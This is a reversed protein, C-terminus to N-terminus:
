YCYFFDTWGKSKYFKIGIKEYRDPIGDRKLGLGVVAHLGKGRNSIMLPFGKHINKSAESDETDENGVKGAKGPIALRAGVGAGEKYFAPIM